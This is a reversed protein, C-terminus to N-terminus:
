SISSSIWCMRLLQFMIHVVLDPMVLRLPEKETRLAAQLTDSKDQQMATAMQAETRHVHQEHM